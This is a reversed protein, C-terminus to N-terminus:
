LGALASSMNKTYYASIICLTLSTSFCMVLKFWNYLSQKLSCQAVRSKLKNIADTGTRDFQAFNRVM